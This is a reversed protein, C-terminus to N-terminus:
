SGKIQTLLQSPTVIERQPFRLAAGKFNDRHIQEADGWPLHVFSSFQPSEAM